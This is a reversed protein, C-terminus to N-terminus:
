HQVGDQYTLEKLIAELQKWDSWDSVFQEAYDTEREVERLFTVREVNYYYSLLDLRPEHVLMPLNHLHDAEITCLESQGTVGLVRIRLLGRELIRLLIEAIEAQRHM